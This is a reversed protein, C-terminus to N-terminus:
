LLRRDKFPCVCYVSIHLLKSFEQSYKSFDEVKVTLFMGQYPDLNEGQSSDWLQIKGSAM